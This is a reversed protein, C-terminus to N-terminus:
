TLCLSKITHTNKIARFHIAASTCLLRVALLKTQKSCAPLWGALLRSPAILCKDVSILHYYFMSFLTIKYIRTWWEQGHLLVTAAAGREKGGISNWDRFHTKKRFCCLFQFDDVIQIQTSFISSYNSGTSCLMLLCVALAQRLNWCWCWWFLFFLLIYHIFKADNFVVIFTCDCCLFLKVVGGFIPGVPWCVSQSIALLHVSLNPPFHALLHLLFCWWNSALYLM